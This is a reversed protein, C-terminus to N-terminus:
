HQCYRILPLFGPRPPQRVFQDTNHHMVKTPMLSSRSGFAPGDSRTTVASHDVDRITHDAGSDGLSDPDKIGGLTDPVTDVIIPPLASAKERGFVDQWYRAIPILDETTASSVVKQYVSTLFEPPTLSRGENSKWPHPYAVKPLTVSTPGGWGLGAAARRCTKFLYPERVKFAYLWAMPSSTATGDYSVGHDDFRRWGFKFEKSGGMRHGREAVYRHEIRCDELLNLLRFDVKLDACMRPADPSRSTYLGHCAEHAIISKLLAVRRASNNRAPDFFQAACEPHVKILHRKHAGDWAWTATKAGCDDTLLYTVASSTKISLYYLSGARQRVSGDPKHTERRKSYRFAANSEPKTILLPISPTPTM